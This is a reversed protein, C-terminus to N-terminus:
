SALGKLKNKKMLTIFSMTFNKYSEINREIQKGLQTVDRLLM